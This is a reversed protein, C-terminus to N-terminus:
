LFRFPQLTVFEFPQLTVFEGQLLSPARGRIPRCDWDSLLIFLSGPRRWASFCLSGSGLSRGSGSGPRLSRPHNHHGGWRFWLLVCLVSLQVLTSSAVSVNIFSSFWCEPHASTLRQGSDVSVTGLLFCHLHPKNSRRAHRHALRLTKELLVLQPKRCLCMAWRNDSLYSM